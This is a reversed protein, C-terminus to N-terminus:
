SSVARASDQWSPGGHGPASLAVVSLAVSPLYGLRPSASPALPLSPHDLRALLTLEAALLWTSVSLAVIRITHSSGGHCRPKKTGYCTFANM